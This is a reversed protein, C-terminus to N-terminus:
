GLNVKVEEINHLCIYAFFCFCFLISCLFSTFLKNLLCFPIPDLCLVIVLRLLLLATHFFISFRTANIWNLNNQYSSFDNTLNFSVHLLYFAIEKGELIKQARQPKLFSSHSLNVPPKFRSFPHFLKIQTKKNFLMHWITIQM